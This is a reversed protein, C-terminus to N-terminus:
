SLAEEKKVSGLVETLPLLREGGAQAGSVCQTCVHVRVDECLHVCMCVRMDESMHMRARMCVCTRVDACAHMCVDGSVRMHARKRVCMRVCSPAHMCMDESVCTHAHVGEGVYMHACVCVDGNVRMHAHVM